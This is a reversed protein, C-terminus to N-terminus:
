KNGWEMIKLNGVWLKNILNLEKWKQFPLEEKLFFTGNLKQPIGKIKLFILPLNSSEPSIKILREKNQKIADEIKSIAMDIHRYQLAM